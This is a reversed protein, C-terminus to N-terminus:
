VIIEEIEAKKRCYRYLNCSLIEEPEVQTANVEEVMHRYFEYDRDDALLLVEHVSSPLILLDSQLDQALEKIKESYLLASAGYLKERNTLVYLGNQGQGNTETGTMARILDRMPILIEQLISKTNYQAIRYLIDVNQGWMNMHNNHILISARGFSKEELSYYFVVALDCWRLHPVDELLERNKEYNILKHFIRDKVYTFDCFFNMDLRIDRMQARYLAVIRDAIEQMDKGECCAGYAEELYITPSIKDTPRMMIIGTLRIDNNKIVHTVKIEYEAGMKERLLNVITEVFLNFDM